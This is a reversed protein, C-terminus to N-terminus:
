GENTAVSGETPGLAEKSEEVVEESPGEVAEEVQEKAPLLELYKLGLIFILGLFGVIGVSLVIEAPAFAFSGLAGWVGEIKGPYYHLPYSAGPIVLYYRKVFVGIVILASAIVVGRVSRKTRPHFLIVLPVIAGMGILLIWFLWSFPGTLMFLTADSAPSYLHTLEGILMLLLMGLLLSKVLGGLSTILDQSLNRGTFRYIIVLLVILLALSSALAAFIFEFSSLPSFWTERASIFGFIAGTGAHTLMAWGFAVMGMIMSFRKMNNLLSVLYIFASLFYSSYFIANIAFMSAMNNMYFLMFLRWFKEPRGLDLAIFVMAGFILVIALFVAARIVERYREQNMIYILFALIHLGASLGILYITMVIPMGWPIVNSSGFMQHGQIYSIIFSIFGSLALVALIAMMIRYGRSKGELTVFDSNV